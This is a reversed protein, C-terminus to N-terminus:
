INTNDTNEDEEDVKDRSDIVEIILGGGGKGSVEQEQKEVYGRHKMKTKSLWILMTTDKDTIAKSYMTTELSDFFEENAVEIAKKFANDKNVWKYYATRSIGVVQCATTVNCLRTSYAKLFKRKKQATTLKRVKLSEEVNVPLENKM